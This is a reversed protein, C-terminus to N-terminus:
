MKKRSYKVTRCDQIVGEWNLGFAFDYRNGESDVHCDMDFPKDEHQMEVTEMNAPIQMPLLGSPESCGSLIELIAQPMDGFSVLIADAFPEFEAMVMPGPTRVCVIVPKKGMARRAELIMDFDSENDVTVTKGRYSRNRFSEQPDGGAISKTRSVAATYPRYQLSIPVYGNGGAKVDEADYGRLLHSAATGPMRIFCLAADAEDPSDVVDFYRAALEPSFPPASGEPIKNGLWDVFGPTHQNPIYVKAQKALPLVHAKNKLLVLSKVQAEFGKAMYAPCGVLRATHEADLYPNEFLGTCFINRLLRQASKQFRHLMFDVGHREVGLQYAGLVPEKVNLGGFQDVGAMIIKYCREEQSLHEVGWCKGGYVSDVPGEDATIGWDTCVVGEYHYKERLLTTILYKSYGSGVNENNERDQGYVITYYPMVASAKCTKGELRFAGELFPVLHEEFNGGPYVSYKGCPFHADRGAEVAGGGPWHKAMANVSDYGWGDQLEAAGKSTQLGDCYARALDAALKPSEGFGGSFRTWRPETSLDIQPSLATTIGLARYEKSVVEGFSRVLAPDFSAALGLPEPWHSIDGGAGADFEFTVTTGHRPDSSINVPIGLPMSEALAQLENNWNAADFASQVYVVLVHRLFHDKVFEIQQDSLAHVPAGSDAFERGQYTHRGFYPNSVSPVFQHSSYLMLGAIQEVTMRSALDKARADFPLRWDEYPHLVGDKALDKFYLGDKEIIKVGSNEAFMLTPGGPNQIKKLKPMSNQM